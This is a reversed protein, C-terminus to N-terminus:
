CPPKCGVKNDDATDVLRQAQNKAQSSTNIAALWVKMEEQVFIYFQLCIHGLFM